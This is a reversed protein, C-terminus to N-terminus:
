YLRIGLAQQLQAFIWYLLLAPFFSVLGALLSRIRTVHNIDKYAGWCIVIWATLMIHNLALVAFALLVSGSRFLPFFREVELTSIGTLSANVYTEFLAYLDPQYKKVIGKSAGNMLPQIMFAPATVYSALLFHYHLTAKGRMAAFGCKIIAATILAAVGSLVLLLGFTSWWDKQASEFPLELLFGISVCFALFALARPLAEADSPGIGRLFTKPGSLIAILDEICRPGYAALKELLDKM